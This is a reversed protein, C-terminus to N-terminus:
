KDDLKFWYKYDRSPTIRSRIRTFWKYAFLVGTMTSNYSKLGPVGADIQKKMANRSKERLVSRFRQEMKFLFDFDSSAKLRKRPYLAGTKELSLRYRLGARRHNLGGRQSEVVDDESVKEILLEGLTEGRNLISKLENSRTVILSTGRGDKVYQPLWGDMVAIDATEAFVDDCYDCAKPKFLGMGWNSGIDRNNITRTLLSGNESKFQAEFFYEDARGNEDKRRFCASVPRSNGGAKRSLYELYQASKMQGCVIGIQYKVRESIIPNVLKLQRLAKHFCPIGTIAYRGPNEVIYKLAADYSVPYYFSTGTAKLDASRDVVKFDYYRERDTTKAVVIVKDVINEDLLKALLWTVIGGSSGSARYEKSYGAYLGTFFGLEDGYSVDQQDGFIKHAIQTETNSKDSFPCVFDLSSTDQGKAIKIDAVLDGYENFKVTAQNGITCVGCGICLGQEVVERIGLGTM